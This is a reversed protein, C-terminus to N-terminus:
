LLRVRQRSGADRVWYRVCDLIYATKVGDFFFEMVVEIGNNHLCKVMNKFETTYDNYKGAKESINDEATNTLHRLHM